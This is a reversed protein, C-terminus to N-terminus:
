AERQFWLDGDAPTGSPGSTSVTIRGGGATAGSSFRVYPQATSQDLIPMKVRFNNADNQLLWNGAGDQIGVNASDAYLRMRPTANVDSFILSITGSQGSRMFWANDGPPGPYLLFGDGNMLGYQSQLRLHAPTEFRFESGSFALPIYSSTSGNYARVQAYGASYGLQIAPGSHDTGVWGTSQMKGAIKADATSNLSGSSLTGTITASGSSLAGTITAPGSSLAGPISVSGNTNITLRDVGATDDRLALSASTQGPYRFRIRSYGTGNQELYLSPVSSASQIVPDSTFTWSGTITQSANLRPINSSLHNDTLVGILRAISISQHGTMIWQGSGLSRFTLVDGASTTWNVSNALQINASNVITLSGAFILERRIGAPATGFSTITTDGTIQVSEAAASGIDTTSASAISEPALANTSRLIAQISRLYDDLTNGIPDTGQPSNNAATLSLDAMTSPIPM